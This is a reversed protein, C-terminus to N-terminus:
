LVVAAERRANKGNGMKDGEGQPVVMSDVHMDTHGGKWRKFCIFNWSFLVLTGIM